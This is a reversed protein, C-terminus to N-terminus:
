FYTWVNTVLQNVYPIILWLIEKDDDINTNNNYRSNRNRIKNTM